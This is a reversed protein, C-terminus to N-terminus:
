ARPGSEGEPNKDLAGEFGNRCGQRLDREFTALDVADGGPPRRKKAAGAALGGLGDSKFRRM